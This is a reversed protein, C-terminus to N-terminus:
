YGGGEKADACINCCYGRSRDISTLMNERGCDPCPLNRPNSKTARRLASVGGPDAFGVGDIPDERDDYCEEWCDRM